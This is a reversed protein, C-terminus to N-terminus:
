PPGDTVGEVLKLQEHGSHVRILTPPVHRGGCV